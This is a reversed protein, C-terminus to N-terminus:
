LLACRFVSHRSAAPSFDTLPSTAFGHQVADSDFSSLWAKTRGIAFSPVPFAQKRPAIALRQWRVQDDQLLARYSYRDRLAQEEAKKTELMQVTKMTKGTFGCGSCRYIGFIIM